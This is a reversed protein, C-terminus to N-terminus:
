ARQTWRLAAQASGISLLIGKFTVRPSPSMGCCRRYTPLVNTLVSFSFVVLPLFGSTRPEDSTRLRGRGGDLGFLPRATDGTAQGSTFGYEQLMWTAGASPAETADM